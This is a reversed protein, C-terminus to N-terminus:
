LTHVKSIDYIKGISIYRHKDQMEAVDDILNHLENVISQKLKFGNKEACVLRYESQGDFDFPKLFPLRKPDKINAHIKQNARYYEIRGHLLGSKSITPSKRIGIKVRSIFKPVDTIEVCRDSKFEQYLRQELNMSMCFAFVREHNIENHFAFQGSTKVRGDVTQITVPTDPKDIHMGEAIDGRAADELRKFYALNRFFLRGNM